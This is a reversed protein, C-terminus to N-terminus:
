LTGPQDGRAQEKVDQAAHKGHDAVDRGAEGASERLAQVHEKAPERLDEAVTSGVEKLDQVLPQSAEKVKSAAQVEKQTAPLLSAAVMGVGFAVLGAALPNGQTQERVAQPAHSVSEGVSGAAGRVSESGSHASGMVRQRLSTVKAKARDTQRRAVNGPRVRDGLEDVDRSLEYRTREIDARIQDPDSTM